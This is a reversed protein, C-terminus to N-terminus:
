QKEGESTLEFAVEESLDRKVWIELLIVLRVERRKGKRARGLFPHM